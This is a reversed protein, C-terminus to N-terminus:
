GALLSIGLRVRYSIQGSSESGKLGRPLSIPHFWIESIAASSQNNVTVTFNLRNGTVAYSSVITGWSYLRTETQGVPDVSVTGSTSGSSTSGDGRSLSAESQRGNGIHGSLKVSSIALYLSKREFPLVM